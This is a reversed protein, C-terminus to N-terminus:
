QALNLLLVLASLGYFVSTTKYLHCSYPDGSSSCVQPGWASHEGAAVDQMHM